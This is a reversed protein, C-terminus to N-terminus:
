VLCGLGVADVAGGVVGELAWNVLDFGVLLGGEGELSGVLAELGELLCGAEDVMELEGDGIAM